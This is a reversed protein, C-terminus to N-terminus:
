SRNQEGYNIEDFMDRQRGQGCDLREPTASPPTKSRSCSNGNYLVRFRNGKFDVRLALWQNPPRFTSAMAVQGVSLDLPSRVGGVTKYLV